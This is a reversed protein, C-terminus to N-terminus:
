RQMIRALFLAHRVQELTLSAHDAIERHNPRRGLSGSLARISTVVARLSAEGRLDGAGVVARGASELAEIMADVEDMSVARVGIADGIADLSVEGADASSRLLDDVILKLEARLDPVSHAYTKTFIPALHRTSSALGRDWPPASMILRLGNKREPSAALNTFSSGIRASTM